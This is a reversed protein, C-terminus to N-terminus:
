LDVEEMKAGCNFCYRFIKAHGDVSWYQGCESCKIHYYGNEFEKFRIWHGTKPQPIVPPLKEIESIADGKFEEREIVDLVAQRSIYDEVQEMKSNTPPIIHNKITNMVEKHMDENVVCGGDCGRDSKLSNTCMACRIGEALGQTHIAMVDECPEQEKLRKLEKLWDSLQRFDKACEKCDTREKDTMAYRENDTEFGSELDKQYAVEEAHKIAEDLTM